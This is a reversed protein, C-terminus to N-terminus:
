RRPRRRAADRGAALLMRWNKQLADIKRAVAAGAAARARGALSAQAAAAFLGQLWTRRNM